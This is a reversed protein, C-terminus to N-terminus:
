SPGATLASWAARVTGLVSPDTTWYGGMFERPGTRGTLVWTEGLLIAVESGFFHDARENSVSGSLKFASQTGAEGVVWVETAVGDAMRKRLAPALAALIRPPAICRMAGPERALGRVALDIFGREGAISVFSEAGSEFEVAIQKELESLQRTQKEVIAAFVDAQRVARFRKPSEGTVVAAGKAVLGRLAQYANARAILLDRAVAYGSAPGGRVLRLYV